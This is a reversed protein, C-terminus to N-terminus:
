DSDSVSDPPSPTYTRSTQLSYNPNTVTVGGIVPFYATVDVFAGFSTDFHGGNSDGQFGLLLSVPGAQAENDYAVTIRSNYNSKVTGTSAGTEFRLGFTSNGLLFQDIGFSAASKGPGWFSQSPSSFDM